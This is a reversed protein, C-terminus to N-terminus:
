LHNKSYVTIAGISTVHPYDAQRVEQASSLVVIDAGVAAGFGLWAAHKDAGDPMAAITKYRQMHDLNEVLQKHNSYALWGTDKWDFALSRRAYSRIQLGFEPSFVTGQYQSPASLEKVVRALDTSGEVPCTSQLRTWCQLGAIIDTNQRYRPNAQTAGIWALAMAVVLASAKLGLRHRQFAIGWFAVLLLLPVLFRVSRILDMQMPTRGMASAIGAEMAPVAGSLFAVAFTLSLILRVQKKERGHANKLLAVAGIAAVLPLVMRWGGFARNLANLLGALPDLYDNSYRLAWAARVLEPDAGQAANRIGSYYQWLNPLAFALFVCGGAFARFILRGESGREYQSVMLAILLALAIPPGSAPHLWMAAGMLLFVGIWDLAHRRASLAALLILPLVASFMLRAQPEDFLGWYDGSVVPVAVACCATFATAIPGSGLIRYALLFWSFLFLAVVVINLVRYWIVFAGQDLYEALQFFWVSANTYFEYNQPQSFLFDNTYLSPHAAALARSMTILTDSGFQAEGLHRFSGAYGALGLLLSLCGALLVV